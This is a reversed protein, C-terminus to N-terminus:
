SRHSPMRRELLQVMQEQDTPLLARRPIVYITRPLVCLVVLSPTSAYGSFADWKVTSQAYLSSVHLGEEDLDITRESQLVKTRAFERKYRWTPIPVLLCFILIGLFVDVLYWFDVEHFVLGYVGVLFVLIGIILFIRTSYRVRGPALSKRWVKFGDVYEQATYSFKAQM